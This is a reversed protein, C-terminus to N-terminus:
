SINTNYIDANVNNHVKGFKRFTNVSLLLASPKFTTIIIIKGLCNINLYFSHFVFLAIVVYKESIQKLKQLIVLDFLTEQILGSVSWVKCKNSIKFSNRPPSPNLSTLSTSITTISWVIGCKAYKTSTLFKYATFKLLFQIKTYFLSFNNLNHYM